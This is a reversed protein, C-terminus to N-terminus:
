RDPLHLPKRCPQEDYGYVHKKRDLKYLLYEIIEPTLKDIRPFDPFRNIEPLKIGDQTIALDFGFYELQPIAAAIQLIKEKAYEWNPLVGEIQVGTDPHVPCDILNGQDIGDLIKADGYRGSEIDVAAVIGGAAVNDVVGTRSSGIRMYVNGIQPTRGDRKFVTVRITNVSGPYIEMLQPHMVIYETILYQNAPNELIALVDEESAPEGNLTFGAEDDWALKYFGEGHSGEDPKLALLKKDKALRIIDGYTADYGEPVDMMPIVRNEGDKLSTYYYYGPFCEKFDSAIYKLTIKDELWYKYKTNIHRLWRYEFDSIFDRWNDETIGYQPIRYSLFGHKYAWLKDKVSLGNKSTFDAWVDHPWRTSQYPVLGKLAVISAYTRRIKLSLNHAFRKRRTSFSAFVEHKARARALLFDNIEASFPIVRNFPPLSRIGIIEYSSDSVRLEFELFEVQPIHHCMSVLDHRIEDWHPVAGEFPADAGFANDFTRIEGELKVKLGQFRGAEDVSSFHRRERRRKRKALEKILEESADTESSSGASKGEDEEDIELDKASAGASFAEEQMDLTVDYMSSDAPNDAYESDDTVVQRVQVLTQAVKPTAGDRNLIRVKVTVDDLPALSASWTRDFSMDAIVLAYRKTLIALWVSFDRKTVPTGDIVFGENEDAKVRWQCLKSWAASAVTMAGNKELFEHIGDIDPSVQKAEETLAIVFPVGARRVIHFYTPEFLGRYSSFVNLASVRDRIWKDYKGNMPHLYLYDRESIVSTRNQETVGFNRVDAPMFGWEYARKKENRSFDQNDHCNSDVERTWNRASRGSFGKARLNFAKIRCATKRVFGRTSSKRGVHSNSKQNIIDSSSNSAAVPDMASKGAEINRDEM